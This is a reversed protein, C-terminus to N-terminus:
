LLCIAVSQIRQKLLITSIDTLRKGLTVRDFSAQNGCHVLLISPANVNTHWLWDGSEQLKPTLQPLLKLCPYKSFELYDNDSLIGIVLCDGLPSELSNILGYNM